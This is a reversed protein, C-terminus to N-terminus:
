AARRTGDPGYRVPSGQQELHENLEAWDDATFDRRDRDAIHKRVPLATMAERAEMRQRDIRSQESRRAAVLEAIKPVIQSPRTVSRRVELSVAGVEQARIGQLSEVASALWLTQQDASMTVPAVLGLMKALEVTLASHEQSGNFQSHQQTALDNM